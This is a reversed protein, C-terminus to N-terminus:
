KEEKNIKNLPSKKYVYIYAILGIAFWIFFPKGTKQLLNLMLYGCSLTALPAIIFVAPCKFPRNLEPRKIRLVLVGVSVVLFAFLIGLSSLNGMIHIPTFGAILAVALTIILLGVYPTQYKDHLKSFIKPFLGDRSMVFFIRSQGYILVLLVAVMGVIAGTGVLASGINSGNLRLALAMPEPSDLNSYHTIGTLALSVLVYLLACVLLGGIIGIPLDRNPNKCEEATTAVADFGLYAFFIAAAGVGIGSWGYPMFDAYNKVDIMPVSILLFLFIVLIKIAVLIRNVVISEKTGRVLLLGVFCAIVIAPLNVVGGDEFPSKALAEPFNFGASNIIGVFYGSWGASVTAAAVSYELILGWAVIWAVIEGMVAYSYTYASGSAPVMSALETYALAAFMCALGALVFSISIAPGAYKAAAIGTLVFIGTGVTCGIGILILDFAGLTKKLSNKKASALIDDISKTRFISKM